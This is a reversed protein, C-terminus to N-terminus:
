FDFKVKSKNKLQKLQLPIFSKYLRRHENKTRLLPKIENYIGIVSVTRNKLISFNIKSSPMLGSIKLNIIRFCFNLYLERVIESNDMEFIEKTILYHALLLEQPTRGSFVGGEHQNYGVLIDKSYYGKGVKLLHYFLHVDFSFEYAELNKLEELNRFLTSSPRILWFWAKHNDDLNFESGNDDDKEPSVKNNRIVPKEIGDKILLYAGCVMSFDPNNELFDVQKQLKQEDIWYDDGDCLALYKGKARPYNFKLSVGGGKKSWQNETQLIPKIIDPYKDGFEKVIEATGDTSADDNILVEFQFNCKQKMFGELCARIFPAHNYTEVLISVLPKNM